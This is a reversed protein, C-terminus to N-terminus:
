KPMMEKRLPGGGWIENLKSYSLYLWDMDIMYLWILMYFSPFGLVCGSPSGWGVLDLWNM